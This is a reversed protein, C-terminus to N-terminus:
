IEDNFLFLTISDIILHSSYDEFQKIKLQKIMLSCDAMEEVFLFLQFLSVTNFHWLFLFNHFQEKSHVFIENIRITM